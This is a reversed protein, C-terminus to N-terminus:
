GNEDIYKFLEIADWMMDIFSAFEIQTQGGACHPYRASLKGEKASKSPNAAVWISYTFIKFNEKDWFEPHDFDEAAEGKCM